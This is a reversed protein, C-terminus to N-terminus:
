YFCLEYARPLACSYVLCGDVFESFVLMVMNLDDAVLTVPLHNKFVSAYCSHNAVFFVVIEERFMEFEGDVAFTFYASSFLSFLM